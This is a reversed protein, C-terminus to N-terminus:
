NKTALDYFQDLYKKATLNDPDLVLVDWFIAMAKDDDDLADKTLAQETLFPVDIPYFALMRDAVKEALDYKEQMRLVFALRLNAPYNYFDVSIIKNMVSEVDSYKEQALLPLSYGLKAETSFPIAKMAQQYYRISNAYQQNLYHLWGLRLNVTYGTPYEDLVLALAKIANDYDVIAEYNYSRKYADQIEVPTLAFTDAALLICIFFFIWKM